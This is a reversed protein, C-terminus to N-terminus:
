AGRDESKDIHGEPAAEPQIEGVRGEAIAEDDIRERGQVKFNREEDQKHDGQWRRYM